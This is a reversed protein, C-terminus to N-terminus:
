ALKWRNMKERGASTSLLMLNAGDDVGTASMEAEIIWPLDEISKGIMWPQTSPEVEYCVSPFGFFM